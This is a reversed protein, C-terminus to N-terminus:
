VFKAHLAPFLTLKLDHVTKTAKVLFYQSVDLVMEM